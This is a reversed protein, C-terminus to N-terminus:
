ALRYGIDAWALAISVALVSCALIWNWATSPYSQLLHFQGRFGRCIMAQHVRRARESARVFLMGALFAFTKYSHLNSAPKFHRLRAARYLRQYEQEIVFIYRYALLLLHVLKAPLGVRTLGYGLATPPMTAILANFALLISITKLSIELSVAVGARSISLVSWKFWVPGGYTLPLMVWLLLLFGLPMVLRRLLLGAPLRAVVTLMLSVMLAGTLATPDRILAITFSYITAMAVRVAPATRHIPSRDDIPLTDLM